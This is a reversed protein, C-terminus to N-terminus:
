RTVAVLYYIEQESSHFLTRDKNGYMRMLRHVITAYYYLLNCCRAHIFSTLCKKRETIRKKEKLKVSFESNNILTYM